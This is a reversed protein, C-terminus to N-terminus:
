LPQYGGGGSADKLEQEFQLIVDRAEAGTVIVRGDALGTLYRQIVDSTTGFAAPRAVAAHIGVQESEGLLRPSFGSVMKIADRCGYTVGSITFSQNKGCILNETGITGNGDLDFNLTMTRVRAEGAASEIPALAAYRPAPTSAGLAERFSLASWDTLSKRYALPIRQAKAEIKQNLYLYPIGSLSEYISGIQGMVRDAYMSTPTDFGSRPELNRYKVDCTYASECSIALNNADLHYTVTSHCSYCTNTVYNQAANLETQTMRVAHASEVPLPAAGRAAHYLKGVTGHDRMVIRALHTRVNNLGAAASASSGYWKQVLDLDFTAPLLGAVATAGLLYRSAAEAYSEARDYSLSRVMTWDYYELAFSPNGLNTVMTSAGNQMVGDYNLDLSSRAMRLPVNLPNGLHLFENSINYREGGPLFLQLSARSTVDAVWQDTVTPLQCTLFDSCVANRATTASSMLAYIWGSNVARDANVHKAYEILDADTAYHAAGHIGRLREYQDALLGMAKGRTPHASWIPDSPNALANKARTIYSTVSAAERGFDGYSNQGRADVYLMRHGLPAEERAKPGAHCGICSPAFGRVVGSPTEINVPVVGMTGIATQIIHNPDNVNADSALPTSLKFVLAGSKAVVQDMCAKISLGPFEEACARQAGAILESEFIAEQINTFRWLVDVDEPPNLFKVHTDQALGYFKRSEEHVRARNVLGIRSLDYTAFNVARGDTAANTFNLSSEDEGATTRQDKSKKAAFRDAAGSCSALLLAATGLAVIKTSRVRM